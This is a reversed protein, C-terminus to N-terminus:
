FDTLFTTSRNWSPYLPISRKVIIKLDGAEIVLYKLQSQCEAIVQSHNESLYQFAEGEKKEKEIDLELKLQASKPVYDNNTKLIQQSSIKYHLNQRRTMFDAACCVVINALKDHLTM